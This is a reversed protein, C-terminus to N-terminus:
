YSGSRRRIFWEIALLLIVLFFLWKYDILDVFNSEEYSVTVIDKRNEIDSILQGIGALTYFSGNSNEALQKLVGHNASSSLKELSIDEVVFVGQKSYSKGNFSTSAEWSYSGAALKGLVLRYDEAKKAFEYKVEDNDQNVLKFNINPSTIREFTANYFEANITVDDNVTFRRPMNIRLADTNRKVTLYQVSKQILENFATNEKHKAYENVKWKWLGEGVVVGFKRNSVSGFYFVPDSKVVPGIRQSLLVDGIKSQVGGFPVNLPPFSEIRNKTKDDLEFLQFSSKVSAQAEDTRNRGPITLGLNLQEVNNQRAQNGVLYLVPIKSEAIQKNLSNSANMGANSWILLAYDKLNGKFDSVLMSEVEVNEDKDIVNKIAAVDPHPAESLMLIKNRGDIVEVYFTWENNEYTVENEKHELRVTYQVFGIENADLLLSVHGFDIPGGKLQVNESTLKKGNRWISVESTGAQMRTAEIDIEVPFQNKLFAIDNSSVNRILQDVKRATDGVGVSFIPTLPIREASYMPHKGKNFNGDSIFLIGGINDNYYQNYIYDFGADLNTVAESFDTGENNIKDGVKLDVFEFKEDFKNKLQANLAKTKSLVESSDSYNLMSSSNDLLTIFIPKQTREDKTELLIGILLVGLLFIALGRLGTLLYRIAKSIDNM